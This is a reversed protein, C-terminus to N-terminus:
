ASLATALRKAVTNIVERSVIMSHSCHPPKASFDGHLTQAL